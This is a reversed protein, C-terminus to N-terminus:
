AAPQSEISHTQSGSIFMNYICTQRSQMLTMGCIVKEFPYPISALPRTGKTHTQSKSFQYNCSQCSPMLAIVFKKFGSYAANRRTPLSQPSGGVVWFNVQRGWTGGSNQGLFTSKTLEM